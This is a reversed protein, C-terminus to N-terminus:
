RYVWQRVIPSTTNITIDQHAMVMYMLYRLWALAGQARQALPRPPPSKFLTALAIDLDSLCLKQEAIDWFLGADLLVRCALYSSLGALFLALGLWLAAMLSAVGGLFVGSHVMFILVSWGALYWGWQLCRATLRALALEETSM